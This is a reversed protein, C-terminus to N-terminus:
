CRSTDPYPYRFIIQYDIIVGERHQDVWCHGIFEKDKKPSGFNIEADIGSQRLVSCIFISRMFCTDRIGLRKRLFLCLNAYRIVKEKNQKKTLKNLPPISSLLLHGKGLLSVLSIKLSSAFVSMLLQWDKYYLIKKIIRKTNM